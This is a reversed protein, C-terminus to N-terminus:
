WSYREGRILPLKAANWANVGGRYWLINKYGEELARLSANYSLWCDANLCYFVLPMAKDSNTLKALVARFRDRQLTSPVGVGADLGLLIAKPLVLRREVDSGLVDILIPPTVSDLQSKLALTRITKAGPVTLPTNQHYNTALFKTGAIGYDKDEDAFAKELNSMDVAFRTMRLPKSAGAKTVFNGNITNSDVVDARISSAAPTTIEIRLKGDQVVSKADVVDHKSDAWGYVADLVGGATDSSKFGYVAFERLRSEGEVEVKWRGIVSQQIQKPDDAACVGLNIMLLSLLFIRKLM